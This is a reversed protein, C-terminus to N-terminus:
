MERYISLSAVNVGAGSLRITNNNGPNLNIEVRASDGLKNWAGTGPLSLRPNINTGNVTILIDVDGDCAYSIQIFAKGGNGGPIQTFDAYAGTNHLNHIAGAPIDNTQKTAGGGVVVSNDLAGITKVLSYDVFRGSQDNYKEQVMYNGAGFTSDLSGTNLNPGNQAVGAPTQIVKQITGDENFFLEAVCVSRLAGNGGSLKANHYFLYWKNNFQTISGQSTDGTGSPDMLSGKYDWPGKPNSGTAYLLEDGGNRNSPSGSYMLYYTNGRKFMWPGRKFYQLQSMTALTLQEELEVMNARLKAIRFEGNGGLM